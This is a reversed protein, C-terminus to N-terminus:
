EAEDLNSKKGRVWDLADRVGEYYPAFDYECIDSAEKRKEKIEKETKMNSM